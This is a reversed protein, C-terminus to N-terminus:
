RQCYGDRLACAGYSGCRASARCGDATAVCRGEAWGCDGSEACGKHRACDSDGARLCVGGQLTCFGKSLCAYDAECASQTRDAKPAQWSLDVLDGAGWTTQLRFDATDHFAFGGDKVDFAAGGAVGISGISVPGIEWPGFASLVVEVSAPPMRGAVAVRVPGSRRLVLGLAHQDGYAPKDPPVLREECGTAGACGAKFVALASGPEAPGGRGSHIAFGALFCSETDKAACGRALLARAAALDPAGAAGILSARALERCSALDGGDCPAQVREAIEDARGARGLARAAVACADLHGGRCGRALLGLQTESAAREEAPNRGGLKRVLAAVEACRSADLECSRLALEALDAPERTDAAVRVCAAVDERTTCLTRDSPTPRALEVEGASCGALLALALWERRAVARRYAACVIGKAPGGHLDSAARSPPAGRRALEAADLEAARGPPTLEDRSLVVM